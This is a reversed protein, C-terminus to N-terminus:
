SRAPIRANLATMSHSCSRRTGFLFRRPYNMTGIRRHEQPDVFITRSTGLAGPKGRCEEPRPTTPPRDAVHREPAPAVDAVQPSASVIPKEASFNLHRSILVGVTILIIVSAAAVCALIVKHPDSFYM